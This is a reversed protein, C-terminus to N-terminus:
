TCLDRVLSVGHLGRKLSPSSLRLIQVCTQVRNIDKSCRLVPSLSTTDRRRAVRLILGACVPHSLGSLAGRTLAPLPEASCVVRPTTAHHRAATLGGSATHTRSRLGAM